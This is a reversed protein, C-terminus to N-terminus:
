RLAGAVPCEDCIRWECLRCLRELDHRDGTRAALLKELLGSLQAREAETLPEILEALAARRARLLEALVSEGAPTLRLELGRRGGARAREVWGLGVLREVLRVAGPQSLGLPARLREISRGPHAAITVLAAAAAGAQGVVPKTAAELVGAADLALAGLLNAARAAGAEGRAAGAEGRAPGAEGRAAGAEGRAAGAEGGGHGNGGPGDGTHM